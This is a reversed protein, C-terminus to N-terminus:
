HAADGYDIANAVAVRLADELEVVLPCTMIFVDITFAAESDGHHKGTPQAAGRDAHTSLWSRPELFAAYRVPFRRDASACDFTSSM